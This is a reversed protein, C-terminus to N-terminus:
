EVRRKCTNNSPIKAHGTPRTEICNPPGRQPENLEYYRAFYELYEFDLFFDTM